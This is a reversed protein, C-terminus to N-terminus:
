GQYDTIVLSKVGYESTLVRNFNYPVTAPVGEFATQRMPWLERTRYRHWNKCSWVGPAAVPDREMLGTIDIFMGNEMDIWRGDIVNLGKGRGRMGHFPNIDLLYTKNKGGYTYSYVTHNHYTALYALASSSMQVDLDQDWPLIRGNWWWGLLTGHALWTDVGLARLTTLYSRILDGLATRHQGYAVTGQFFRADYHGLSESTGPEIFYKYEIPQQASTSRSSVPITFAAVLSLSLLSSFPLRM